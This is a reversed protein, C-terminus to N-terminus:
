KSIVTGEPVIKKVDQGMILEFGNQNLVYLAVEDENYSTKMECLIDTLYKTSGQFASISNMDVVVVVGNLADYANIFRTMDPGEYDLRIVKAKINKTKQVFIDDSVMYSTIFLVEEEKKVEENSKMLHAQGLDKASWDPRVFNRSDPIFKLGSIFGCIEDYGKKYGNDDTETNELFQNLLHSPFYKDTIIPFSPLKDIDHSVLYGIFDKFDYEQPKGTAKGDEFEQIQVFGGNTNWSTIATFNQYIGKDNKKGVKSSMADLLGDLLTDIGGVEVGIGFGIGKLEKKKNM